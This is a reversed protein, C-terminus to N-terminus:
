EFEKKLKLYEAYRKDKEIDQEFTYDMFEALVGHALDQDTCYYENKEWNSRSEVFEKIMQTLQDKTSVVQKM